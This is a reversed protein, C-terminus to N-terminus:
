VCRTSFGGPSCVPLNNDSLRSRATIQMGLTSKSRRGAAAGRARDQGFRGWGSTYIMRRTILM